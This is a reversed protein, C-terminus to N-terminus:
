AFIPLLTLILAASLMGAVALLRLKVRDLASYAGFSVLLLFGQALTTKLAWALSDQTRGSSYVASAVLIASWGMLALLLLLFGRKFRQLLPLSPPASHM